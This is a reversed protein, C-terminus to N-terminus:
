KESHLTGDQPKRQPLLKVNNNNIQELLVKAEDRTLQEFCQRDQENVLAAYIEILRKEEFALLKQTSGPNDSYHINPLAGWHKNGGWIEWALKYTEDKPLEGCWMLRCREAPDAREPQCLELVVAAGPAFRTEIRREKVGALVRAIVFNLDFCSLVLHWSSVTDEDVVLSPWMNSILKLLKATEVRTM